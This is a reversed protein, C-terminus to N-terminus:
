KDEPLWAKPAPERDEDRTEMWAPCAEKKPCDKGAIMKGSLSTRKKTYEGCSDCDWEMLKCGSLIPPQLSHGNAVKLQLPLALSTFAKCTRRVYCETCSDILLMKTM